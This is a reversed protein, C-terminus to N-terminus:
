GSGLPASPVDLPFLMLSQGLMGLVGSQGLIFGFRLFMLISLVNLSTPVFVGSFTGLKSPGESADPLLKEKVSPTADRRRGIGSSRSSTRNQRGVDGLLPRREPPLARHDELRPGRSEREAVNGSGARWGPLRPRTTSTGPVNSDARQRDDQSNTSPTGQLLGRARQYVAPRWGLQAADDTAVRALFSPRSRQVDPKSLNAGTSM